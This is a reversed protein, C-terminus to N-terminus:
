SFFGAASASSRAGIKSSLTTSWMRSCALGVSFFTVTSSSSFGALLAVLEGADRGHLMVIVVMIMVVVM